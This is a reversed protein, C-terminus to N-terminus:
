PDANVSLQSASHSKTQVAVIQLVAALQRLLLNEVAHAVVAIVQRGVQGPVAHRGAGLAEDDGNVIGVGWGAGAPPVPHHGVNGGVHALQRLARAGAFRRQGGACQLGAGVEARGAVAAGRRWRAFAVAVLEGHMRQIHLVDLHILTGAARQHAEVDM